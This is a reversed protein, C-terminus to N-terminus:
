RHTTFSFVGSTFLFIGGFSAIISLLIWDNPIFPYNLISSTRRPMGSLGAIYYSISFIMMGVFWIYPQIQALKFNFLNKRFL